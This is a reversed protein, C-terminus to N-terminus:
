SAEVDVAIINGVKRADTITAGSIVIISNGGTDLKM